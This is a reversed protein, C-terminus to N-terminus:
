FGRRCVDVKLAARWGRWGRWGVRSDGAQGEGSDLSERDSQMDQCINAPRPFVKVAEWASTRLAKLTTKM